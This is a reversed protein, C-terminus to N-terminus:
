YARPKEICPEGTMLKSYSFVRECKLCAVLLQQYPQGVLLEGCTRLQHAHCVPCTLHAPVPDSLAPM